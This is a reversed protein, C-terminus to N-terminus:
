DDRDNGYRTVERPSHIHVPEYSRELNVANFARIKDYHVIHRLSWSM